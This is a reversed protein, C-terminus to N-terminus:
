LNKLSHSPAGLRYPSSAHVYRCLNHIAKLTQSTVKVSSRYDYPSICDICLLWICAQFFRLHGLLLRGIIPSSELEIDSRGKEEGLSVGLGVTGEGLFAM